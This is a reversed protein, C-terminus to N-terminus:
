STRHAFIKGEAKWVATAVFAGAFAGILAPIIYVSGVKFGDFWMGLVPTGVWGGLWGIVWKWLFGDFGDLVRYHFGFHVVLAALLSLLSIAVFSVFHMDVMDTVEEKYSAKLILFTTQKGAGQGSAQVPM